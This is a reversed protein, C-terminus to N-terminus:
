GHMSFQLLIQLDTGSRLDFDARQM